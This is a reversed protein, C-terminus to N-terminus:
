SPLKKGEKRRALPLFMKSFWDEFVFMDFWGAKTGRPGGECWSEYLNNSKYVVYPPLLEGSASGCVMLSICSKVNHDRVYEAYKIGRRFIAKRTGPDDRLNTEDYNYLNDPEVDEVTKEFREFFEEVEQRSVSARARKLINATRTTLVNKHRDLFGNVWDMGPTNNNFNLVTKGISNLYSKVLARLDAKSLPFGWTGMVLIREKLM